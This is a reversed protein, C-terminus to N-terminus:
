SSWLPRPHAKPGVSAQTTPTLPPGPLTLPPWPPDQPRLPPPLTTLLPYAMLNSVGLNQLGSDSDWASWGGQIAMRALIVLDLGMSISCWVLKSLIRWFQVFMGILGVERAIAKNHRGMIILHIQGNHSCWCIQLVNGSFHMGPVNEM